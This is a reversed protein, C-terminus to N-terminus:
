PCPAPPDRRSPPCAPPRTTGSPSALTLSDLPSRAARGGPRLVSTYLMTASVDSHGPLEQVTRIDCGSLLLHTVSPRVPACHEPRTDQAGFPDRLDPMDQGKSLVTYAYLILRPEETCRSHLRM